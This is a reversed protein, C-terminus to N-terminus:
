KVTIHYTVELSISGFDTASAATTHITHVGPPLPAVILNICDHIVPGYVGAPLPWWGEAFDILSDTSKATRDRYNELNTVEM